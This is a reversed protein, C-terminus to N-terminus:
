GQNKDLKAHLQANDVSIALAKAADSLIDVDDKTFEEDSKKNGLCLIGILQQQITLPLCLKANLQRLRETVTEPLRVKGQRGNMRIPEHTEQLFAILPEQEELVVQQGGNGACAAVEYKHTAENLLLLSCNHLRVTKCLVDVTVRALEKLDWVTAGDALRKLLEKDDYKKQFLYKDTVNILWTHVPQYLVVIITVAYLNALWKPIEVFRPLLDQSMFALLSVMGLMFAVLGAFVLTRKVVVAIQVSKPM